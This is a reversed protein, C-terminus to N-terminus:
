ESGLTKKALTMKHRLWAYYEPDPRRYCVGEINVDRALLSAQRKGPTWTRPRM